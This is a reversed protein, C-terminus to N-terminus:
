KNCAIALAVSSRRSCMTMVRSLHHWSPASVSRPLRGDARAQALLLPELIDQTSTCGWTPSWEQVPGPIVTEMPCSQFEEAALSSAVVFNCTHPIALERVAPEIGLQRFIEKIRAKILRAKPYTSTGPHQEVLLSRIGYHSLLLSTTLGVPGGGVILVPIEAPMDRNVEM